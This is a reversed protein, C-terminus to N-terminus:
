EIFNDAAMKEKLIEKYTELLGNASCKQYAEVWSDHKFNLLNIKRTFRRDHLWTIKAVGLITLELIVATMAIIFPDSM